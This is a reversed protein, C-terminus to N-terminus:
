GRITHAHETVPPSPRSVASEDGDLGNIFSIVIDQAEGTEEKLIGHRQAPIMHLTKDKSGLGSVILEASKPVVIPDNDGQLVAAPCTVDALHKKVDDVVRRLEYLGRVPIHRYNVDPNESKNLVFPKVGELPSAWEAIVNAGHIVPVSILNKNRFRIPAAISAVGALGDPQEAALRLSLVGGTSFGVLCVRDVVSTMIEYARRVSDLWDHWTRDRLDWPSTGHGALRVGIVPHGLSAMRHGFASLEAPSALFGHVLVIGLAHHEDPILLYPRSDAYATEQQNIEEHQPQSYHRRCQDFIRLEDDFRFLALAGGGLDAAAEYAQHVAAQVGAVPAVENAYVEVMNELRIEHISHDERLKPLLRYANPTTEILNSSTALGVFQEFDPTRGTRIGSYAEPDTLGPHLHLSPERQVNKIALYLATHFRDRAVSDAGSELITLILTSALHSLNVTVGAYMERMAADRLGRIKRQLLMAFLREAWGRTRHRLSFLDELNDINEFARKLLLREWWSDYIRPKLATGFRVDMDTRKLLINGEIVIEEKFKNRLGRSFLDAGKRLINDTVRIPFFTINAPVVLTPKRAAELLADITALGLALRWRELRATNGEQHTSLIRKKFLELTIAIAAAGKHHKRREQATVSFVSYDGDDSLVDRDKVIGGEPFVIIKRGRLVEAVLFPLLGELDNPVVGISRLFNAAKENGQFFEAAAVSRSYTATERYLLYPPVVTEFRAFHNFLFIQGDQALDGPDHLTITIGLRNYLFSFARACWRYTSENIALDAGSNM